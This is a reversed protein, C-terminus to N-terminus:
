SNNKDKIVIEGRRGVSTIGGLLFSFYLSGTGSGSPLTRSSTSPFCHTSPLIIPEPPNPKIYKPLTYIVLYESIHSQVQSKKIINQSNFSQFLIYDMFTSKQTTHLYHKTSHRPELCSQGWHKNDMNKQIVRLLRKLAYNCLRGSLININKKSHKGPFM